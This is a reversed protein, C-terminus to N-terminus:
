RATESCFAIVLGQDGCGGVERGDRRQMGRKKRKGERMVWKGVRPKKKREGSHTM